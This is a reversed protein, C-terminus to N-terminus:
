SHAEMFKHFSEATVFKLRTGTGAQRLFGQHIWNRFAQTTTSCLDAVTKIKIWTPSMESQNTM